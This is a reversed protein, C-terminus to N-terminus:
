PVYPARTRPHPWKLGDRHPWKLSDYGCGPVKDTKRGIGVVRGQDHLVLRLTTGHRDALRRATDADLWM